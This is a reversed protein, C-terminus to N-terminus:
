QESGRGRIFLRYLLIPLRLLAGIILVIHMWVMRLNDTIMRFHSVGAEHYRVATPVNIVPVQARVLRIILESIKHAGVGKRNGILVLRHEKPVVSIRGVLYKQNM